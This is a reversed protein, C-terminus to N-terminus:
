GLLGMRWRELKHYEPLFNLDNGQKIDRFLWLIFNHNIPMTSERDAIWKLEGDFLSAYQLLQQWNLAKRVVVGFCYSNLIGVLNLLISSSSIYIM